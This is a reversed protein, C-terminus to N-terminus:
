YNPNLFNSILFSSTLVHFNLSLSVPLWLCCVISHRSLSPCLILPLMCLPRERPGGEKQVYLHSKLELSERSNSGYNRINAYTWNPPRICVNAYTRTHYAINTQFFLPKKPKKKYAYKTVFLFDRERECVCVCLFM